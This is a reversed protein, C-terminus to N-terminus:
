KKSPLEIRVECPKESFPSLFAVVKFGVFFRDFGQLLCVVPKERVFCVLDYFNESEKGNHKERRHEYGSEKGHISGIYREHSHPAAKPNEQAKHGEPDESHHPVEFVFTPHLCHRGSCGIKKGEEKQGYHEEKSKQAHALVRERKVLQRM